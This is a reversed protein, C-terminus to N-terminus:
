ADAGNARASQGDASPPAAGPAGAKKSLAIIRAELRARDRLLGDLTMDLEAGGAIIIVGAAIDDDAFFRAPEGQAELQREIATRDAEPWSGPIVCRGAAPPYGASRRLSRWRLGASGATRRRGAVSSHRGCCRGPRTDGPCRRATRQAPAGPYRTGSRGSSDAIPRPFARRHHTSATRCAASRIGAPAACQRPGRGRRPHTPM